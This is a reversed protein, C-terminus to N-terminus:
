SPRLASRRSTSSWSTRAGAKPSGDATGDARLASGACEDAALGGGRDRAVGAQAGGRRADDDLLQVDRPLRSTCRRRVRRRDGASRALGRGAAELERRGLGAIPRRSSRACATPSPSTACSTGRSRARPRPSRASRAVSTSRSAPRSCRPCASCRGTARHRAVPGRDAAGDREARASSRSRRAARAERRAAAGDAQGMREARRALLRHPVLDPHPDLRPDDLALM